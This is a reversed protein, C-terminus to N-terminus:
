LSLKDMSKKVMSIYKEWRIKAGAIHEKLFLRDFSTSVQEFNYFRFLIFSDSAKEVQNWVFALFFIAKDIQVWTIPKVKENHALCKNRFQLIPYFISDTNKTDFQTLILDKEEYKDEIKRWLKRLTNKDYKSKESEWEYMKSIKMVIAYTSGVVVTRYLFSNDFTKDEVAELSYIFARLHVADLFLGDIGQPKDYVGDNLRALKLMLENM